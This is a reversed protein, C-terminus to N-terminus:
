PKRAKERRDREAVLAKFLDSPFACEYIIEAKKLMKEMSRNFRWVFFYFWCCLWGAAFGLLASM